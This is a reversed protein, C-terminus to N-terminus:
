LSAVHSVWPLPAGLPVAMQLSSSYSASFTLTDSNSTTLSSPLMPALANALSAMSSSGLFGAASGGTITFPRVGVTHLAPSETLKSVTIVPFGM